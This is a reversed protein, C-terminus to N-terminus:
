FSCFGRETGKTIRRRESFRAFPVPRRSGTSVSTHFAHILFFISYWSEFLCILMSKGRKEETIYVFGFWVWPFELRMKMKLDAMAERKRGRREGGAIIERSRCNARLWHCHLQHHRWSHFGNVQVFLNETSSQNPVVLERLLSGTTRRGRILQEHASLHFQSWIRKDDCVTIIYRWRQRQCLNTDAKLARLSPDM